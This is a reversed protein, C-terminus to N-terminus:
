QKGKFARIGSKHLKAYDVRGHKKVMKQKIARLLQSTAQGLLEAESKSKKAEIV